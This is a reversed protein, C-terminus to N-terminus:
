ENNKTMLGKIENRALIESMKFLINQAYRPLYRFPLGYHEISLNDAHYLIHETRRSM